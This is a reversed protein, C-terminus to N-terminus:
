VANTRQSGMELCGGEGEEEMERTWAQELLRGGLATRGSDKLFICIYVM